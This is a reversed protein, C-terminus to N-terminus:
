STWHTRRWAFKWCCTLRLIKRLNILNHIPNWKLKRFIVVSPTCVSENLILRVARKQFKLLPHLLENSANGWITIGYIFHPYILGFYFKIRSDFLLAERIRKFLFLRSNINCYIKDIQNVWVNHSDLTLGLLKASTIDEIYSSDPGILREWAAM